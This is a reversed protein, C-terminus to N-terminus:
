RGFVVLSNLTVHLFRAIDNSGHLRLRWYAPRSSRRRHFPGVGRRRLPGVCRRWTLTSRVADRQQGLCVKGANRITEWCSGIGSHIGIARLATADLSWFSVDARCETM